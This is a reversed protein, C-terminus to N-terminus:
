YIKCFCRGSLSNGCENLSKLTSRCKPSHKCEERLDLCSKLAQSFIVLNSYNYSFLYHFGGYSTLILFTLRGVYLMHLRFTGSNSVALISEENSLLFLFKSKRPWVIHYAFPFSIRTFLTDFINGAFVEQFDVNLM